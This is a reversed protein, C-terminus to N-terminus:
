HKRYTSTEKPFQSVFSVKFFQLKQGSFRLDMNDMSICHVGCPRNYEIKPNCM